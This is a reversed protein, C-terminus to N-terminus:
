ACPAALRSTDTTGWLEVAVVDVQRFSKGRYRFLVPGKCERGVPVLGFMEGRSYSGANGVVRYVPADNSITVRVVRITTPDPIVIPTSSKGTAENSAPGERCNSEACTPYVRFTHDGNALNKAYFKTDTVGTALTEWAGAGLKHEIRYVPQLVMPLGSNMTTVQLWEICLANNPTKADCSTVRTASTQAAAPEFSAILSLAALAAAIKVTTRM